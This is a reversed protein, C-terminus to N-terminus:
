YMGSKRKEAANLLSLIPATRRITPALQSAEEMFGSDGSESTPTLQNSGRSAKRESGIAGNNMMNPPIGPSPEGSLSASGSRISDTDNDSPVSFTLETESVPTMSGTSGSGRVVRRELGARVLSSLAKRRTRTAFNKSGEHKTTPTARLEDLNPPNRPQRHPHEGARAQGPGFTGTTPTAPMGASRLAASKLPTEVGASSLALATVKKRHGPRWANASQPPLPEVNELPPSPTEKRPSM